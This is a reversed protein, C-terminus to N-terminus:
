ESESNIENKERDITACGFYVYMRARVVVVNPIFPLSNNRDTKNPENSPAGPRSRGTPEFVYVCVCVRTYIFHLITALHFLCSFYSVDHTTNNHQHNNNNNNYIPWDCAAVRVMVSVKFTYIRVNFDCGYM